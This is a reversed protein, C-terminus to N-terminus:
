NVLFANEEQKQTLICLSCSDFEKCNEYLIGHGRQTKRGTENVM